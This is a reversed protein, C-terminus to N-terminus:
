TIKPHCTNNFSATLIDFVILVSKPSNLLISDNERLHLIELKFYRMCPNFIKYPVTFHLLHSWIVFIEDPRLHTPLDLISPNKGWLMCKLLRTAYCFTNCARTLQSWEEEGRREWAISVASSRTQVIRLKLRNRVEGLIRVVKLSVAASAEELDM